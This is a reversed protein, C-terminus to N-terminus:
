VDALVGAIQPEALEGVWPRLSGRELYEMVIYHRTGHQFALHVTVVNPHSLQGNILKEDRFRDAFRPDGATDARLCKIAVEREMGRQWARWVEGHGGVGLQELLEFGDGNGAGIISGPSAGAPM